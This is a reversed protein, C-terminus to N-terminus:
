RGIRANSDLFFDIVINAALMLEKMIAVIVHVDVGEVVNCGARHSLTCSISALQALTLTTVDVIKSSTCDCYDKLLYM